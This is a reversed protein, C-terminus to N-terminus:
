RRSREPTWGDMLRVMLYLDGILPLAGDGASHLQAVHRGCNDAVIARFQSTVRDSYLLVSVTDVPVNDLGALWDFVREDLAKVVM